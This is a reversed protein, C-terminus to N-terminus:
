GLTAGSPGSAEEELGRGGRLINPNDTRKRRRRKRNCM